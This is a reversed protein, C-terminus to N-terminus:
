TKVAKVLNNALSKGSAPNVGTLILGDATTYDAMPDAPEDWQAGIRHAIAECDEVGDEKMKVDVEMEKEGKRTFGTIKKGKAISDGRANLTAAFVAPGHCVAAVPKGAEYLQVAVRAVHQATPYDYLAGHGASFFVADYNTAQLDKGAKLGVTLIAHMPHSTDNWTDASKSYKLMEASVSHEDVRAHGTESAVDVIWGAKTFVDYPDVAESWFVGTREGTKYLVPSASTVVLLVRPM